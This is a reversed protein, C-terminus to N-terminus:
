KIVEITAVHCDGDELSVLRHGTMESWAAVDAKFAPDTAEVKLLDGAELDKVRLSLQVIPM